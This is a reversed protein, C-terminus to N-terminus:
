VSCDLLQNFSEEKHCPVAKGEKVENMWEVFM